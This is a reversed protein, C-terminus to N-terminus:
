PTKLAAAGHYASTPSNRIEYLLGVGSPITAGGNSIGPGTFTGHVYASCSAACISGTVTGPLTGNNGTEIDLADLGADGTAHFLNSTLDYSAYPLGGYLSNGGFYVTLLANTLTGLPATPNTSTPHTAAVMHYTANGTTPLANGYEKVLMWHISQNGSLTQNLAGGVQGPGGWRTLFLQGDNYVDYVGTTNSSASGLSNSVVRIAGSPDLYAAVNLEIEALTGQSSKTSVDSAAGGEIGTLNAIVYRGDVKYADNLMGPGALFEDGEERLGSFNEIGPALGALSRMIDENREIGSETNGEVDHGTDDTEAQKDSVLVSPMHDTRHPATMSDAVFASTGAPVDMSGKENSVVIMGRAVSAYLGDKDRQGKLNVCDRECFRLSYHTGRIGITAVPADMRYNQKNRKGIAGTITRLGGKILSFFGRETGDEQGSYAYDEVKLVSNAPLSILSGDSFRVQLLGGATELTTGSEVDIGKSATIVAGDSKILRAIGSAFEVKGAAAQAGFTYGILVVCLLARVLTSSSRTCM